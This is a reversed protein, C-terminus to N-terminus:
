PQTLVKELARRVRIRGTYNGDYDILGQRRFDNMFLSVRSRTAGTIEALIEQSVKPIEVEDEGSRDLGALLLLVRALRQSSSHFLRDLLDEQMRVNRAILFSLFFGLLQQDRGLVEAMAKREVKLVTCESLALASTTRVRTNADLSEEGLFDGCQLLAITAERGQTSVATLKVSGKLIYFVSDAPGGESFIAAKKKVRLITSGVAPSRLSAVPDGNWGPELGARRPSLEVAGKNEPTKTLEM